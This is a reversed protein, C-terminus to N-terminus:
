RPPHIGTVLGVLLDLRAPLGFLSDALSLGRRVRQFLRTELRLDVPVTAGTRAATGHAVEELLVLRQTRPLEALDVDGRKSDLHGGPCPWPPGLGIPRAMSRPVDDGLLHLSLPVDPDDLGRTGLPGERLDQDRFEVPRHPEAYIVTLGILHRYPAHVRQWMHIITDVEEPVGLHKHYEVTVRPIPLDGHRVLVPVLRGENAMLPGITANAKRKTERIGRLGELPGDVHDEPSQLSLAAEHVEVVDDDERLRRPFVHLVEPLGERRQPARTDEELGLLAVHELLLHLTKPWM